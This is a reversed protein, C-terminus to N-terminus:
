KRHYDKELTGPNHQVKHGHQDIFEVKPPHPTEDKSTLIRDVTGEHSGGRYKTGVYDGVHIENGHKDQVTEQDKASM